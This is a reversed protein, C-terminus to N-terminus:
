NLYKGVAELITEDSTFYVCKRYPLGDEEIVCDKGPQGCVCHIKDWILSANLNYDPLWAPENQQAIIVSPMHLVGALHTPGTDVGVYLKSNKIVGALEQIPLNIGLYLDKNLISDLEEAQPRDVEAGTIVIGYEPYLGRLKQLLVGWRKFPLTKYTAMHPFPHIVIYAKNIFPFNEPLSSEIEYSPPSGLPLTKLGALQALRRLNDIYRANRDYNLVVEYPQLRAIDRFGLVFDGRLRAMFALFKISAPHINRAPPAILIARERLFPFTKQFSHSFSGSISIVNVKKYSQALQAILKANRRALYDIELQSNNEILEGFLSLIMIADGMHGGTPLWILKKLKNHM